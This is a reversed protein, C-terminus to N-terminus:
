PFDQRQPAAPSYAYGATLSAIIGAGDYKGMMTDVLNLIEQTGSQSQAVAPPALASYDSAAYVAPSGSRAIGSQAFLGLALLLMAVLMSKLM